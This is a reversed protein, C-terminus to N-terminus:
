IGITDLPALFANGYRQGIWEKVVAIRIKCFMAGDVSGRFRAHAHPDNPHLRPCFYGGIVNCGNCRFFNEGGRGANSPLALTAM